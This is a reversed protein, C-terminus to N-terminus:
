YKDFAQIIKSRRSSFRTILGKELTDKSYADKEFASFIENCTFGNNHLYRLIEPKFWYGNGYTPLSGGYREKYMVSQMYYAWMEAVACYGADAGKGDGYKKSSVLAKIRYRLYKNWYDTGVEEFHSSHAVEHSATAYIDRYDESDKLGIALDPLFVKILGVYEGLFTKFLSNDLVAGQHMMLAGSYKLNHLIWIRLGTPPTTLYWKNRGCRQIYDYVANNVACRKFLVNGSDKNITTSLGSPTAKGLNSVSAPVLVLNLGISFDAKNKFVISYNLETSFKKSMEYYGNQDTYTDDTKVFSQCTVNVGAVGVSKGGNYHKDTITIRGKPRVPDYAKSQPALMNENGTLVYAQREVEGWDLMPYSKATVDNEVIYCEDIVEYRVDPFEFDVPVVAYQWTIQGQPIAPDHYWDGEVEVEYDLPHDFLRLGLETLIDYDTQSSPLFRVYLDTAKVEFEGAKTPYLQNIAKSINEIKYPNELREGLVMEGDQNEPVYDPELGVSPGEKSCAMVMFAMLAIKFKGRMVKTKLNRHCLELTIDTYCFLVRIFLFIARLCM